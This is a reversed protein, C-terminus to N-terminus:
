RGAAASATCATVGAWRCPAAQHRRALQGDSIGAPEPVAEPVVGQAADTPVGRRRHSDRGGAISSSAAMAPSLLAAEHLAWQALAACASFGDWVLIYGVGFALVALRTGHEGRGAQMAAFLLLVPAATGAMMGVMMVAWMAFTFLVDAAAWPMDMTMGMAAMKM